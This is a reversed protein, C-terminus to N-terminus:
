THQRRLSVYGHTLASYTAATRLCAAPLPAQLTSILRPAGAHTVRGDLLEPSKLARRRPLPIAEHAVRSFAVPNGKVAATLADRARDLTRGQKAAAALCRAKDENNRKRDGFQALQKCRYYSLVKFLLAKSPVHKVCIMSQENRRLFCNRTLMGTLYRAFRRNSM